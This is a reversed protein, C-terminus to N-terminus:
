ALSHGPPEEGTLIGREDAVLYGSCALAELDSDSVVGVWVTLCAESININSM